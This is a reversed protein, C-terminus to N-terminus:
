RRALSVRHDYKWAQSRDTVVHRFIMRMMADQVVRGVPGATKSSSSRAGDRVVKEVRSRRVREYATFGGEASGADRLSAALVVADELALSAGQGSSPSPAHVADGVLVLRGRHWTRM